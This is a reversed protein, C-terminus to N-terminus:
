RQFLERLEKRIRRLVAEARRRNRSWFPRRTGLRYSTLLPAMERQFVKFNAALKARVFADRCAHAIAVRLDMVRQRRPPLADHDAPVRKRPSWLGQEARAWLRYSLGPRRHRFGAEQSRVVADAGVPEGRIEGDAFGAAVIRRLRTNRVVVVNTGRPDMRHEDLWADGFSIDATEAVVDDCLDCALYKFLGVGWDRTVLGQMPRVVPQGDRRSIRVGYDSAPRDPLKHRFDISLLEEPAVGSEWAIAEAFAHSKLHGCFIGVCYAIREDLQPDERCLRRVAKVFCPIGVFAYRGSRQRVESIVTSFEVPYYRSKAGSRVEEVSHSLGYKFLIPQDGEDAPKVHIVGDIEGLDMLKTLMWTTMGGSSGAARYEGTEVWGVHCELHRGLYADDVTNPDAFLEAGLEDENPGEGSFPCVKAFGDHDAVSTAEPLVTAQYEGYQNIGIEILDPHSVRCAGCGICAGSGVVRDVQTAIPLLDSQDVPPM